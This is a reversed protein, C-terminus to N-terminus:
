ALSDLLRRSARSVERVAGDFSETNKRSPARYGSIKRVFQLAADHIEQDTPAADARRLTKISRCM